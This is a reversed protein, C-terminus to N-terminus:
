KEIFELYAAAVKDWAFHNIVREKLKLRISELREKQNELSVMKERLNNIDRVACWVGLERSLAEENAPIDSCICLCGHSMAELLAIPFGESSSVLCFAFAFELLTEKDDGYVPGAFVVRDDDGSLEHLYRGYENSEDGCIVLRKSSDASRALFAQILVDLNKVPDIRGISLYYEGESLGLKDLIDSKSLDKKRSVGCHVVDADKGLRRRILQQNHRSVTLIPSCVLRSMFYVCEILIKSLPGHKPNDQAFSHQTHVVRAGLWRPLLEYLIPIYISQYNVVDFKMRNRLIFLTSLINHILISFSCKPCRLQIIRIGEYYFDNARKGRCMLVVDHGKSQLEVALNLMYQEIGGQNPIECGGILTIKM